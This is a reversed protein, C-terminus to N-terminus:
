NSAQQTDDARDQSNSVSGVSLPADDSLDKLVFAIVGDRRDRDGPDREPNRAILAIPESRKTPGDMRITNIRKYNEKVGTVDIGSELLDPFDKAARLRNLALKANEPVDDERISRIHAIIEDCAAESLVLRSNQKSNEDRGM